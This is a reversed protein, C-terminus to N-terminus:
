TWEHLANLIPSTSGTRKVQKGPFAWIHRWAHWRLTISQQYFPAGVCVRASLERKNTNEWRPLSKSYCTPVLLRSFSCGYRKQIHVSQSPRSHSTHATFCMWWLLIFCIRSAHILVTQRLFSRALDHIPDTWSHYFVRQWGCVCM